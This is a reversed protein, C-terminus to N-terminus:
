LSRIFNELLTGTNEIYAPQIKDFSDAPSHYWPDDKYELWVAPLGASEFAEHDSSSGSHLYPLSRGHAAAYAMLQNCFDMPGIGMTRAYLQSGVGVMDVIIAGLFNDKDSQSMHSVYYRSGFHHAGSGTVLEEEGGFLVFRFNGPQNAFCRALELVVATGSGNDNAGPSGTGTKTDYHAGVLLIEYDAQNLAQPHQAIVNHTHAGNPLPVDQIQVAYGYGQLKGAICSVAAEDGATGEVRSGIGVSLDWLSDMANAVEFDTGPHYVPREVAIPKDSEIEFSVDPGVGLSNVDITLRSRGPISLQPHLPYTAAIDVNVRAEESGPNMLCLYTQFGPRTTGEALYWKTGASEIGKSVHGGRCYGNYNFYMPREALFPVDASLEISVDKGAGVMQNINLTLRRDPDLHVKLSQEAGAQFLCNLTVDAGAGSSGPLYLSLWEEFGGGTYGEAFLYTKRPQSLGSSAHGGAWMGHYKFYMVREACIPKAAEVRTGVDRGQGVAQNVLLTQRTHAPLNMIVPTVSGDELVLFVSAATDEDGPNALLLWEEFGDRTCGEAFYWNQELSTSGGTITCGKWQGRYTFYMPREAVVPLSAELYLSVESDGGALANIDLTTRSTPPLDLESSQSSGHNYLLNVKLRSAAEQPNFVCLFEQFGQGTYGEAFYWNVSAQSSAEGCTGDAALTQGSSGPHLGTLGFSAIALLFIIAVVIPSSAHRYSIM